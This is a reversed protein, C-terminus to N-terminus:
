ETEQEENDSFEIIIDGNEEDRRVRHIGPKESNIQERQKPLVYEMLKLYAAIRDKAELTELDTVITDFQENVLSVVRGKLTAATKNPTGIKRGGTKDQGKQFPM